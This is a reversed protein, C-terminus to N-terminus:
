RIWSTCYVDVWGVNPLGVIGSKLSTGFRGLLPGPGEGEAGKKKPPMKKKHRVFTQSKLFKVLLRNDKPRRLSALLMSYSFCAFHKIRDLACKMHTKLLPDDRYYAAISTLDLGLQKWFFSIRETHFVRVAAWDANGPRKTELLVSQFFSPRPFWISASDHCLLHTYIINGHCHSYDWAHWLLYHSCATNQLSM